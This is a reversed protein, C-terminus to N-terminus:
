GGQPHSDAKMPMGDMSFEYEVILGDPYALKVFENRKGLGAERKGGYVLAAGESRWNGRFLYDLSTRLSRKFDDIEEKGQIKIIKSSSDFLWGQEGSNTQVNKVGGGKFETREKNPFVIVDVFTSPLDAAGGRFLTFYGTSYITKVQLYRDGGLKELARNVISEAKEDKPSQATLSESLGAFFLAFLIISLINRKM